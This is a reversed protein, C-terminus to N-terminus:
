RATAASCTSAGAAGAARDPRRTLQRSNWAGLYGDAGVLPIRETCSRPIRREIGHVAADVADKAMVRYTTYKGGAVVILGPM